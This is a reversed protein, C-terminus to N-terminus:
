QKAFFEVAKHLRPGPRNIIDNEETSTRVIKSERFLRKVIKDDCYFSIIVVDPKQSIAFEESITPYYANLDRTISHNGSKEIYDTIFSKKGITILPQTQVLYLIKKNANKNALKIKEQSNIVLKKANESKGTLEGLKLIIDYISKVDPYQFCLPTIKFRKFKELAFTSSDLALIFDPKITLIKEENIFFNNGVKTKSQAEKPYSCATSVGKLMDQANIAYMIETLAPSLSVFSAEQASVKPLFLLM